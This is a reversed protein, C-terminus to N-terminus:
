VAKFTKCVCFCSHFCCVLRQGWKRWAPRQELESNLPSVSIITSPPLLLSSNIITRWRRAKFWVIWCFTHKNVHSGAQFSAVIELLHVAAEARGWPKWIHPWSSASMDSDLEPDSPVSPLLWLTPTNFTFVVRLSHCISEISESKLSLVLHLPHCFFLLCSLQYLLVTQLFLSKPWQPQATCGM